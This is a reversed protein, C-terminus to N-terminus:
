MLWTGSRDFNFEIYPVLKSKGAVVLNKMKVCPLEVGSAALEVLAELCNKSNFIFEQKKKSEEGPLLSAM